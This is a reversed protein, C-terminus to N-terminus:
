PDYYPLQLSFVEITLILLAQCSASALDSGVTGPILVEIYDARRTPERLMRASQIVIQCQPQGKFSRGAIGFLQAIRVWTLLYNIYLPNNLMGSWSHTM